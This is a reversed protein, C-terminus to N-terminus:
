GNLSYHGASILDAYEYVIDRIAAVKQEHSPNFKVDKKMVADEALRVASELTRSANSDNESEARFRVSIQLAGV